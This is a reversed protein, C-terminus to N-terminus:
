LLKGYMLSPMNRKEWEDTFSDFTEKEQSKTTVGPYRFEDDVLLSEEIIDEEAQTKNGGYMHSEEEQVVGDVDAFAVESGKIIEVDKEHSENQDHIEDVETVSEKETTSSSNKSTSNVRKALNGTYKGREEEEEAEQLASSLMGDNVFWAEEYYEKFIKKAKEEGIRRDVLRGFIYKWGTIEDKFIFMKKEVIQIDGFCKIFDVGLLNPEKFFVYKRLLKDESDPSKLDFGAVEIKYESVSIMWSRTDLLATRNFITIKQLVSEERDNLKKDM